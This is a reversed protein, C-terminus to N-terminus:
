QKLREDIEARGNALREIRAQGMDGRPARLQSTATGACIASDFFRRPAPMPAVRGAPGPDFTASRASCNAWGRRM